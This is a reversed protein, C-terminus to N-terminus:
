PRVQFANKIIYSYEKDFIDNKIYNKTLIHFLAETSKIHEGDLAM